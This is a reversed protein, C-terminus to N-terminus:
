QHFWEPWLTTAFRRVNREIDFTEIMSQRGNGGLQARLAPEDLLHAMAKVLAQNDDPPLLLGNVEHELIEPIASVSTSIVPLQMAMAECIVNPIGDVDGEDTQICPLVFM